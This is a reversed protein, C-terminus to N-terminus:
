LVFYIAKLHERVRSSVECAFLFCCVLPLVNMLETFMGTLPSNNLITRSAHYEFYRISSDFHLQGM